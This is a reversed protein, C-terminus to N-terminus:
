CMAEDCRASSLQERYCQVASISDHQSSTSPTTNIPAAMMCVAVECIRIRGHSHLFIRLPSWGLVQWLAFLAFQPSQSVSHVM